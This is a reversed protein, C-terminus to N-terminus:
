LAKTQATLILDTEAVLKAVFFKGNRHKCAMKEAVKVANNFKNEIKQPNTKGNEGWIIFQGTSGALTGEQVPKSLVADLRLLDYDSFNNSHGSVLGGDAQYMWGKSYKQYIPEEIKNGDASVLWKVEINEDKLHSDTVIGIWGKRSSSGIHKVLCGENCLTSLNSIFKLDKFNKVLLDQVLKQSINVLQRM